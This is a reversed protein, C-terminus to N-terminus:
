WRCISPSTAPAHPTSDRWWRDITWRTPKNRPRANTAVQSANAEPASRNAAPAPRDDTMSVTVGKSRAPPSAAASGPATTRGNEMDELESFLADASREPTKAKTKAPTKVKTKTQKNGHDAPTVPGFFDDGVEVVPDVKAPPNARAAAPASLVVLLGCLSLALNTPSSARPTCFTM